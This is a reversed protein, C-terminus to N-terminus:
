LAVEALAFVRAFEILLPIDSTKIAGSVFEDASPIYGQQIMRRLMEPSTKVVCDAAGTPRGKKVVCGTPDVEVTYRPGDAGGLSFYWSLPRELRGADFRGPLKDFAAAIPDVPARDGMDLPGELQSLDLVKGDRLREVALQTLKAVQRAALSHKMGATLRQLQAVELPPGIRIEVKRGRPLSAGKPLIDYCGDMYLPLIDVKSELSLWGLLPKFEQLAGDESRTGEPFMLVVRGEALTDLAQQLSTRFGAKRDLPRVNTLQRFYAVKWPHGEFFYDQAALAVIERGYDGLAHKVLGMDLHSSHNSVVIAQRNQPIFARGTVRASLVKGNLTSQVVGLAGKLPGVLLSPIEVETAEEELSLAEPPPAGVLRVLEDVSECRSLLDADLRGHAVEDLAAALEVWMLSDFGLEALTRSPTVEEVPVGAVAAIARAVPEAVGGKQSRSPAAAAIRELIARVEARLVKRSSNRPLDVDVLHLIAPRQFAPLAGLAERLSDRAAAHRASRSTTADPAEAVALLGLREGGRGDPLGVLALERVGAVTGLKAEVDDLYINEGSATVVVDKARGALILRGKHDLRGLDGTRLWGDETLVQATAEPQGFYGKMVNPGRAWVQGIGAEDSEVIKVEVGPVPVGVNGPKMGPRPRSATLVPSAETLGYGEAMPLGLGAFLSWTEKPLASGGSILMRIRGGFRSHVSGFFLPGLDLGLSRGAARNAELMGDFALQFLKGKDRAQARIRRELLQWLAPVGVMCTIRGEQLGVSLRDANIEDLYLIGAGASLPLLLGCALEFAHHLPLVSMVRDTDRLPFTRGLSGVMHTLNDHSLMVGKPEGTTGSTYILLALDDPAIEVTPIRGIAGLGSADHLDLTPCPLEGLHTRAHADLIAAKAGSREAIRVAAEPELNPDLPVAVAGLRLLGFLAIPWDPHNKGSLIVRDGQVVGLAALRVAVAMSRGKVERFSSRVLGDPHLLLLAPAQDHRDAAEDLLAVLHDFPRLPRDEKVLKKELLPHVHRELGPCHVKMMWDRWDVLHPAWPLEERDAESLRMWAARTHACSFRYTHTAIFPLFVDAIRGQTELGKAAGELQKALPRTLPSLPGGLKKILGALGAVQKARVGPGERHYTPVDLGMPELRQQVFSVLPNGGEKQFRQRRFLGTLEILRRTELPNTDSSGYQYVVEHEGQLLEALTLCMGAAVLDAPIVDLISDVGAPVRLFTRTGMWILPASTNIGENWGPEPYALSSEIVAPRGITFPLGSAALIQEGLSKTYTYINHWGWFRAREDGVRILEAEEYRRKVKALENELARGRTPEGRKELNQQAQFLFDAQRFSDKVRHRVNEVLDVCERIEGEPDWLAPDLEDARPFPFTRPDVEAVEGTRAGAVYCTSTHFFAIDGLDRALGVLNKMGFANVKLSVDLPPNFDVVGAVNCLVEVRGRMRDRIEAPIGGFEESVDGPIPTIKEQLFADFAAGPYHERLPAFVPSSAVEAWFRARSAAEGGGGKPRVIMWIHGVGPCRHLMMSLWVKGLFGTGGFVLLERGALAARPDLAGKM